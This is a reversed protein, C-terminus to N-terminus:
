SKKKKTLVIAVIVAIIAAAICGVVAILKGTYLKAPKTEILVAATASSETDEPLTQTNNSDTKETATSSTSETSVPEEPPAPYTSDNASISVLGEGIKGHAALADRDLYVSGSEGRFILSGNESEALVNLYKAPIQIYDYGSGKPSFDVEFSTANEFIGNNVINDDFVFIGTGNKGSSTKGSATVAKGNSKFTDHPQGDGRLLVFPTEMDDLIFIRYAKEADLEAPAGKYDELSYVASDDVNKIKRPSLKEIGQYVYFAHYERSASVTIEDKGTKEVIPNLASFKLDGNYNNCVHCVFEKAEADYEWKHARFKPVITIPRDPMTFSVSETFPHPGLAFRVDRNNSYWHVTCLSYAQNPDPTLVVKEGPAFSGSGIVTRGNPHTEKGNEDVIYSQITVIHKTQESNTGTAFTKAPLLCSMLCIIPIICIFRKKM